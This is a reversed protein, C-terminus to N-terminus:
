KGFAERGYDLNTSYVPLSIKVLAFFGRGSVSPRSGIEAGYAWGLERNYKGELGLRFGLARTQLEATSFERMIAPNNTDRMMIDDIIISPAYMVDLFTTLILDDSLIGYGKDPKIALNKIWSMSGGLFLGRVSQNTHFFDTTPFPGTADELVIEQEAAIRKLDIATNYAFGGLRAGIIKRVKSPIITHEPVHAAWRNGKQYRKSYLIMKTETDTEEDKIHYTGGMEMYTFSFPKNDVTSNKEANSRVFDTSAAYAHRFNGWFDAKNKHLYNAALGFGASSNTAFLETYIPQLHVFLKNIAYPDDYLEEYTIAEKMLGDQAQALQVSFMLSALFCLTNLLKM